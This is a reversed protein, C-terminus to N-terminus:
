DALPEVGLVRAIAEGSALGVAQGRVIRKAHERRASCVHVGVRVSKFQV